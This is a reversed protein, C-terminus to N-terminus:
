QVCCSSMPAGICLLPCPASSWAPADPLLVVMYTHVYAPVLAGTGLHHPPSGGSTADKRKTSDRTSATLLAEENCSATPGTPIGSSIPPTGGPIGVGTSPCSCATPATLGARAPGGFTMPDSVLRYSTWVDLV